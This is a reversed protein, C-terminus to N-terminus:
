QQMVECAGNTKFLTLGRMGRIHVTFAGGCACLVRAAMRGNREIRQPLGFGAAVGRPEFREDFAQRLLFLQREDLVRFRQSRNQAFLQARSRILAYRARHEHM